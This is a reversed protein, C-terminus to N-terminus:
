RSGSGFRNRFPSAFLDPLRIRDRRCIRAREDAARSQDQQVKASVVMSAEQPGGKARLALLLPSAIVVAAVLYWGKKM